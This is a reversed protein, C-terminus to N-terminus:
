NSHANELKGQKAASHFLDLTEKAVKTVDGAGLTIVVDLPRLVECLRAALRERPVYSCMAFEEIEKQIVEHTVGPISAEGSGYIDTIWVGDADAFAEGFTGLCEQSRSFRHPQFVVVLNRMGFAQRMAKLTAKIETPHHAYDDIFDISNFEGKKEARRAVGKFSALASRITSEELGLQLALTFVAAANLANHQGTLAVEIKSYKKGGWELNFFIRWGYQQFASIRASCRESFGYSVGPMNLKSLHADDGCWLLHKDSTVQSMFTKFSSILAEDTKFHSMHDRDINTVIAGYPHYKLFTGDSEDAEAIFYKGAGHSANTGFKALIGGVVFTPQTHSAEMVETLLSSTTTKGHTGAVALALRGKMLENLVDSRHLIPCKLRLAAQYEPNDQKIDSSLVVTMDAAINKAEQGLFITAGQSKLLDTMRNSAKDSGSVTENRSLLIKALGSMGIGGIGVFHYRSM